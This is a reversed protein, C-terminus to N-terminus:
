QVNCYGTCYDSKNKSMRQSDEQSIPNSTLDRCILQQSSMSKLQGMSQERSRLASSLNDQSSFIEAAIERSNQPFDQDGLSYKTKCLFVIARFKNLLDQSFGKDVVHKVYNQALIEFVTKNEKNVDFINIKIFFNDLIFKNVEFIFEIDLAMSFHLINCGTQSDVAEPNAGLDFLKGIVESPKVGKILGSEKRVLDSLFQLILNSRAVENEAQMLYKVPVVKDIDTQYAAELSVGFAVLLVLLVFKAM